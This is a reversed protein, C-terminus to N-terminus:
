PGTSGTDFVLRGTRGVNCSSGPDVLEVNARFPERKGILHPPVALNSSVSAVGTLERIEGRLEPSGDSPTFTAVDGVSLKNYVREDVAATVVAHTCDLLRMVDQGVRVNEGSTALTEWIRASAPIQLAVTSRAELRAREAAIESSLFKLDADAGILDTRLEDIRRRTEDAAQVSSPRDNYSDGIFVGESAADLEVSVAALQQQASIENQIAITRERTIRGLDAASVNGSRSLSASREYSANAEERRATAVLVLAQLEARRATLQKVRGRRFSESQEELKALARGSQELRLRLSQRLQEKQALQIELNDLRSRDARANSVVLAQGGSENRVDLRGEIPSRLTIVRRNLVADVSSPQLMMRLPVYGFGFLLLVGITLKMAKRRRVDTWVKRPRSRESISDLAVRVDSQIIKEDQVTQTNSM